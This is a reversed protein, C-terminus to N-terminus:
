ALILHKATGTNELELYEEISYKQKGWAVEPEHIEM